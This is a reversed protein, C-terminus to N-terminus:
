WFCSKLSRCHRAFDEQGFSSPLLPFSGGIPIRSCFAPTAAVYNPPSMWRRFARACFGSCYGTALYDRPSHNLKGFMWDLCCSQVGAPVFELEFFCLPCFKGGSTFGHWERTGQQTAAPRLVVASDAPHVGVSDPKRREAEDWLKRRPGCPDSESGCVAHM